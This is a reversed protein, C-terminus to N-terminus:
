GNNLHACRKFIMFTVACVNDHRCVAYAEHAAASSLQYIGSVSKLAAVHLSCRLGPGFSVRVQIRYYLSTAILPAQPDEAPAFSFYPQSDVLEQQQQARPPEM